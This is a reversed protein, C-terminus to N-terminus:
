CCADSAMCRAVRIVCVWYFFFVWTDQLSQKKKLESVQRKWVTGLKIVGGNCLKRVTWLSLLSHTFNINQFAFLNKPSGLTSASFWLQLLNSFPSSFSSATMMWGHWLAYIESLMIIEYTHPQPVSSSSAFFNMENYMEWTVRCVIKFTYFFRWENYRRSLRFVEPPPLRTLSLPGYIQCKFGCYLGSGDSLFQRASLVLLAFCLWDFLQKTGEKCCKCHASQSACLVSRLNGRSLQIAPLASM